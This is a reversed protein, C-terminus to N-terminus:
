QTSEIPSFAIHLTQVAPEEQLVQVRLKSLQVSKLFSGLDGPVHNLQVRANSAGLEMASVELQKFERRLAQELQEWDAPTHYSRIILTWSERAQATSGGTSERTIVAGTSALGGRVLRDLQPAVLAGLQVVGEAYDSPNELNTLTLERHVQGIWQAARATYIELDAILSVKGDGQRKQTATGIVMAGSSRQAALSAAQDLSVAGTMQLDAASDAPAPNADPLDLVWEYDQSEHQVSNAFLTQAATGLESKLPVHWPQEQEWKEAVLWLVTQGRLSAKTSEPPKPYEPRLPDKRAEGPTESPAADEEPASTVDSPRPDEDGADASLAGLQVLDARLTEMNLVVQGTVRYQGGNEDQTLIQQSRVYRHPQNLIGADLDDEFDAMTESGVLDEVAQRVAQFELDAIADERSGTPDDPDYSAEGQSHYIQDAEVAGCRLAGSLSTIVVLLLLFSRKGIERTM